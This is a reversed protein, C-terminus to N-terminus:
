GGGAWAVTAVGGCEYNSQLLALDGTDLSGLM